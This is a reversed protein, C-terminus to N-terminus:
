LDELEVFVWDAAETFLESATPQPAKHVATSTAFTVQAKRRPAFDRIANSEKSERTATEASQLVRSAHQRRSVASHSLLQVVPRTSSTRPEASTTPARVGAPAVVRGAAIPAPSATFRNNNWINFDFVDVVGNGNFDGSQPGQAVTFRNEHWRAFDIADISGDFNADGLHGNRDYTNSIDPLAAIAANIRADVDSRGTNSLDDVFVNLQYLAVHPNTIVVFYTEGAISEWVQIGLDQPLFEFPTPTQVEGGASDFVQLHLPHDVNMINSSALAYGGSGVLQFVDMDFPRDIFSRVHAEGGDMALVTANPGLADAHPDMGLVSDMDDPTIDVDSEAQHVNVIYEGSTGNEGQVALFYNRGPRVPVLLNSFQSNRDVKSTALLNFHADLISISFDLEQNWAYASINLQSGATFFTFADVDNIDDIFSDVTAVSGGNDSQGNDDRDFTLSTAGAGVRDAHRDDGRRSDPDGADWMPAISGTQEVHMVYEGARGDYSGIALFYETGVELEFEIRPNFIEDTALNLRDLDSTALLDGARNHLNLSLSTSNDPSFALTSLWDGDAVFRFMDVDHETDVFSQIRTHALGNGEFQFHLYTAQDGIEDGHADVGLPSDPGQPVMPAQHFVDLVYEGVREGGAASVSIFYHQDVELQNTELLDRTLAPDGAARPDRNHAILNGHVDWVGVLVSWTGDFSKVNISATDMTAPFRFVDVDGVTDIYSDVHASVGDAFVLETASRSRIDAHPDDGLSSDPNSSSVDVPPVQNRIVFHYEAPADSLAAVDTTKNKGGVSIFYTENSETPFLDCFEYRSIDCPIFGEPEVLPNIPAIEGGDSDFVHVDPEVGNGEVNDGDEVNGAIQISEGNADLQFVDVDDPDDLYSDVVAYDGVFEIPTAEPGVVNVHPDEGPNSDPLVFPFIADPDLGAGDLVLRPELSETLLRRRNPYTSTKKRRGVM